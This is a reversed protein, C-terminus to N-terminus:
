IHFHAFLEHGGGWTFDTTFLFIFFLRTELVLLLHRNLCPVYNVLYFPPIFSQHITNLTCSCSLDSCSPIAACCLFDRVSHFISFCLFIPSSPLHLVCPPAPPTNRLCLSGCEEFFILLVSSRCNSKSSWFTKFPGNKQCFNIFLSVCMFYLHTPFGVAIVATLISTRM